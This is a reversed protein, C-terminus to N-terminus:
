LEIREKPHYWIGVILGALWNSILSHFVWYVIITNSLISFFARPPFNAFSGVLWVFTGYLIGKKIGSSPVGAYILAYIIVFVWANILSFFDMGIVNWVDLLQEKTKWINPPIDYVWNFLWGCTVANFVMSVVWILIGVFFIRTFNM